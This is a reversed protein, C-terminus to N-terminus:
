SATAEGTTGWGAAEDFIVLHARVGAIARAAGLRGGTSYNCPGCCPRINDRKYTGGDVGPVIRDVTITDVDLVTPCRYCKVTSGDGGFGAAPSLLWDKRRRRTYSSGRANSNSTSRM